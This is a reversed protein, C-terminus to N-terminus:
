KNLLLAFYKNIYYFERFPKVLRTNKKRNRGKCLHWVRGKYNSQIMIGYGIIILLYFIPPKIISDAPPM